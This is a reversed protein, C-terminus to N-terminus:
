GDHHTHIMYQEDNRYISGSAKTAERDPRENNAKVKLIPPPACTGLSELYLDAHMTFASAMWVTYRHYMLLVSV